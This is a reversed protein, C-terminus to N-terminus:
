VANAILSRPISAYLRGRVNYDYNGSTTVSRVVFAINKTAALYKDSSHRQILYGTDYEFLCIRLFILSALFHFFSHSGYSNLHTKSVEDAHFSTNLFTAYTPCDYGALLQFAYPGFGYFKV